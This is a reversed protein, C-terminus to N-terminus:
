HALEPRARTILGNTMGHASESPEGEADIV